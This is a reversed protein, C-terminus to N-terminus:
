MQWHQGPKEWDVRWSKRPIRVPPTSFSGLSKPESLLQNQAQTHKNECWQWGSAVLLCGNHYVPTKVVAASGWGWAKSEPQAPHPEIFKLIYLQCGPLRAFNGRVWPLAHLPVKWPCQSWFWIAPNEHVGMEETGKEKQLKSTQLNKRTM